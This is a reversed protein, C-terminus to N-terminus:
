KQLESMLMQLVGDINELVENNWIRITRYGLAALDQDRQLDTPSNAHQGGDVEVILQRERCVFDAYYPGIPEQRVFKYGGLQRNRIRNWLVFEPKTLARRLSRARGARPEDKGRM